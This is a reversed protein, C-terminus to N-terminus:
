PRTADGPQDSSLPPTGRRREQRALVLLEADPDDDSQIWRLANWFIVPVFTFTAVLWLLAAGIQEDAAAGLSGVTHHFNPYFGRNSLGVLYAMIWFVWMSVAGLVARLLQGSRPVLPPSEVLELWLGLGFVLLSLAEVFALWGHAAVAAVVVPAHWAIVVGLDCAVFVLSRSLGRHRLRRDALRDFPGPASPPDSAPAALRLRRWPAGVAVLAPLPIALLAFQLAEGYNSHRAVTAVPPVLACVLVVLAALLCWPRLGAAAGRPRGVAAGATM